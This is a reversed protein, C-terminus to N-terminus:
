PFKDTHTRTQDDIKRWLAAQKINDASPHRLKALLREMNGVYVTTSSLFRHDITLSRKLDSLSVPSRQTVNWNKTSALISAAENETLNAAKARESETPRSREHRQFNWSFSHQFCGDRIKCSKRQSIVSTLINKLVVQPFMVLTSLSPFSSQFRSQRRCFSPWKMLCMMWDWMLSLCCYVAMCPCPM